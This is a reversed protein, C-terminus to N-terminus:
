DDPQSRAEARSEKMEKAKGEVLALPVPRLEKAFAALLVRDALVNLLRPCGSSFSAFISEVGPAFVEAYRGGAVGIRHRLYPAVEDHRLLEVHHELAIRQRLPRLSPAALIQRLEPQGTLIIQLLKETDTELNSLLRVEELNRPDLNQAEDIILVTNVGAQMRELLFSNLAVIYDAKTTLPGAIRLEGAILKLVDLPRLETTNLILATETDEPVRELAARLLTTKGAGVEGTLLVFGKGAPSGM